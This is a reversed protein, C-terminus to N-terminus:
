QNQKRRNYSIAMSYFREVDSKLMHNFYSRSFGVVMGSEEIYDIMDKKTTRKEM